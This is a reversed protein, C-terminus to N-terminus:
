SGSRGLYCVLVGLCGSLWVWVGLGLVDVGLVGVGLIGVGLIGLYGSRICRTQYARM